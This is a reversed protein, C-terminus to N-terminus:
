RRAILPETYSRWNSPAAALPPALSGPKLDVVRYGGACLAALFAPFMQATQGVVDHLLIIGRGKRNLRSMLLSLQRDPSMPTWDSAWLDSGFVAFNREVLWGDLAATNAFGPYRFFPTAVGTQTLGAADQVARIGNEIERTGIEFSRQRLTWPHTMTHHALTHGEAAMRRVLAPYATANRGILFFTARAGHLKLADLVRGTPGPLPGDDLTLVVERDALDLTRPHSQTGIFLGGPAGLSLTRGALQCRAEAWVPSAAPGALALIGAGALVQRRSPAAVAGATGSAVDPSCAHRVMISREGRETNRARMLQTDKLGKPPPLSAPAIAVKADGHKRANDNM